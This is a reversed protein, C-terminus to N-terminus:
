SQSIVPLSLCAIAGKEKSALTISGNVAKIIGLASSLGLGVHHIKNSFFPEFARILASDTIEGHSNEISIRISDQENSNPNKAFDLSIHVEGNEDGIAEIANCYLANLAKSFSVPEIQVFVDDPEIHAIIDVNDPKHSILKSVWEDVFTHIDVNMTFTTNYRAFDMVSWCIDGAEYVFNEICKAAETLKSDRMRLRYVKLAISMLKNNMVHSLNGLADRMSTNVMISQQVENNVKPVLPKLEKEHEEYVRSSHQSKLFADFIAGTFKKDVLSEMVENSHSASLGEHETLNLFSSALYTVQASIPIQNGSIQNPFGTGDYCEFYNAVIERAQQMIPDNGMLFHVGNVCHDRLAEYESPTLADHSKTMTDPAQIKGIEYLMAAYKINECTTLDVGVRCAIKASLNGVKIYFERNINLRNEIIALLRNVNEIANEDHRAQLFSLDTAYYYMQTRLEDLSIPEINFYNTPTKLQNKSLPTAEPAVMANETQM